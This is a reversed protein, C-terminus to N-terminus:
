NDPGLQTIGTKGMLWSNESVLVTAVHVPPLIHSVKTVICQIMM